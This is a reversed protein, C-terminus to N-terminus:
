KYFWGWLKLTNEYSSAVGVIIALVTIALAAMQQPQGGQFQMGGAASLQPNGTFDHPAVAAAPLAAVRQASEGGKDGYTLQPGGFTARAGDAPANGEFSSPGYDGARITARAMPQCARM